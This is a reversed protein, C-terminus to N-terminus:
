KSHVNFIYKFHSELIESGNTKLHGFTLLQFCNIYEQRSRVGKNCYMEFNGFRFKTFNQRLLLM